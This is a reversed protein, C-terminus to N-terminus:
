RHPHSKLNPEAKRLSGPKQAELDLTRGPHTALAVGAQPCLVAALTVEALVHFLKPTGIFNTLLATHLLTRDSRPHTLGANGANDHRGASPLVNSAM